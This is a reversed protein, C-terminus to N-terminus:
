RQAEEEVHYLQDMVLQDFSDPTSDVVIRGRLLGVMRTSYRKALEPQHLVAAVALNDDLALSRLLEMVHESAAPDLASVPEDALLVKARQCLARAIAVRQQQGGSLRGAPEHARNDLGVRALCAMSEERLERPFAWASWSKRFGLRGLGGACVNDLVSRRPVLNIRQFVMAISPVHRGARAVQNDVRVTGADPQTLGVVCRLATSKGSGNAGLVAVVEGSHIDLSFDDLVTTDGYKKTLGQVSLTTLPSNDPRRTAALPTPDLTDLLEM